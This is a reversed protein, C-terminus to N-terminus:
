LKIPKEPAWMFITGSVDWTIIEGLKVMWVDGAALSPVVNTILGTQGLWLQHPTPVMYPVASKYQAGWLTGALRTDGATGSELMIGDVMPELVDLSTVHPLACVDTGSWTNVFCQNALADDLLLIREEVTAGNVIIPGSINIAGPQQVGPLPQLKVSSGGFNFQGQM